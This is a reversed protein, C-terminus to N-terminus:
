FIKRRQTQLNNKGSATKIISSEPDKLSEILRDGFAHVGLSVGQKDTVPMLAHKPTVDLTACGPVLVLLGSLLIKVFIAIKM